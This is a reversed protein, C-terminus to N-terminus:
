CSRGTRRCARYRRAVIIAAPTRFAPADAVQAACSGGDEANGRPDPLVVPRRDRHGDPLLVMARPVPGPDCRAVCIDRAPHRRITGDEIGDRGGAQLRRKTDITRRVPHRADGSLLLDLRSRRAQFAAARRTGGTRAFACCSRRDGGAVGPRSEDPTVRHCRYLTLGLLSVLRDAIQELLLECFPSCMPAPTERTGGRGSPRPCRPRARRRPCSAARARSVIATDYEVVFPNVAVHRCM